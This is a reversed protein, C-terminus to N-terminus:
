EDFLNLTDSDLEGAVVKEASVLEADEAHRHELIDRLQEGNLLRWTEDPSLQLPVAELAYLDEPDVSVEDNFQVAPIVAINMNRGKGSATLVLDFNNLGLPEGTEQDVVSEYIANFQGFLTVGRELVEVRNLPQPKIQTIDVGDHAAPFLGNMKPYVVNGEPTIKVETRNYVNVLYRNQKSIFGDLRSYPVGPSADILKRNQICVPCEDEGLCVISVRQSPIFHKYVRYAHDDLIRIRTPVNPIVKLFYTQKFEGFEKREPIEAFSM